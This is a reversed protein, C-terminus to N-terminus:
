VHAECTRCYSGHPEVVSVVPWDRIVRGSGQNRQQWEVRVFVTEYGIKRFEEFLENRVKSAVDM